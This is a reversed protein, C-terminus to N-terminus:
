AASVGRSGGRPQRSSATRQGAAPFVAAAPVADAAGGVGEGAREAEDANDDLVAGIRRAGIGAVAADIAGVVVLGVVVVVLM